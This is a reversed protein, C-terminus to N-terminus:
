HFDDILFYPTLDGFAKVERGGNGTCSESESCLSNSCFSLGLHSIVQM